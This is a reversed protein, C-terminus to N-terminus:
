PRLYDVLWHQARVPGVRLNSVIIDAKKCVQGERNIGWGRANYVTLSLNCHKYKARADTDGCQCVKELGM